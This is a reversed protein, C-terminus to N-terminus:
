KVWSPSQIRKQAPALPFVLLLVGPYAGAPVEPLFRAAAVPGLSAAHRWAADMIATAQQVSAPPPVRVVPVVLVVGFRQTEEAPSPLARWAQDRHSEVLVPAAEVTSPWAKRVALLLRRGRVVFWLGDGECTGVAGEQRWMAGALLSVSAREDGQVRRVRDHDALVAQWSQLIPEWVMRDPFGPTFLVDPLSAPAAAAARVRHPTYNAPWVGGTARTEVTRSGSKRLTEVREAGYLAALEIAVRMGIDTRITSLLKNRVSEESLDPKRGKSRLKDAYADLLMPPALADFVAPTFADSEPDTAHHTQIAQRITPVFPELWATRSLTRATASSVESQPVWSM